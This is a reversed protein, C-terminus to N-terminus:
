ARRMRKRSPSHKPVSTFSWPSATPPSTPVWGCGCSDTPGSRCRRSATTPRPTPSSTRRSTPPIRAITAQPVTGAVGSVAESPSSMSAHRVLRRREGDGRDSACQELAGGRLQWRRRHLEGEGPDQQRCGVFDGHLHEGDRGSHGFPEVLRGRGGAGVSLHIRLGHRRRGGEDHWRRGFDGHDGGDADPGTGDQGHDGARGDRTHRRDGAGHLDAHHHHGGGDGAGQDHKRWGDPGGPPRGHGHGRTLANDDGDLYDITADAESKTPTVTIRSVSKGVAAEHELEDSPFVPSLTIANGDGDELTLDSLTADTFANTGKIAILLSSPATSWNVTTNTKYLRTNGISWGTEGTEGDATTQAFRPRSSGVGESVTIWYTKGGALTTGAPATFTNLGVKLVRPNKLIAVPGGPTNNNNGRIRVATRGGSATDIRLQVESITFEGANAGTEFSQAVISNTSNPMVREGTNSVFTTLTQAQLPLILLAAFAALLVPMLSLAALSRVGLRGSEARMLGTDKSGADAWLRFRLWDPQRCVRRM